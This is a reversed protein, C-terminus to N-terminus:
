SKMQRLFSLVMKGVMDVKKSQIHDPQDAASHYVPDDRWELWAVPIGALEYPEHDSWGSKGPDRLYTVPMAERRAHAVLADSLAKPGKGMTRSHLETGYGVMDISIMGVTAAREAASMRSVRYRSGFHHHDPNSDITEEAGFFVFEVTVPPTDVALIEALELLVACGSANDNAGPSPPKSDYHAGLVIVKESSGAVRAIVNRSTDGGVLPFEELRAELGIAELRGVLYEAARAEAPDGAGRPGFACLERISKMSASIDFERLVVSERQMPRFLASAALSAEASSGGVSSDTSERSPMAELGLEPPRSSALFPNAPLWSPGGASERLAPERLASGRLAPERLALIGLLVVALVALSGLIGTWTRKSMTAVM